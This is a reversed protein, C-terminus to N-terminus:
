LGYERIKRYLTRESIGMASSAKVRNGETLELTVRIHNKEVDQATKGALFGWNDESARSPAWIEPPLDQKTLINGQARVVMSEVANRLERVNGKWDYHVLSVLAERDIADVGKGHFNGYHHLFHDVLLKIDGRRERLPPLDLTVVKIRFYLDERFTQDAVKEALNANTAALLRVDVKRSRNDGLRTVMQDELVRLLKIQTATPMEGVEDLLLTGGDAYEFKGVRDSVAGTFAGKTHGFLESEITGESLGGCNLAVFPKERRSSYNHIARAIMEKGTGSEGLILVSANTSAIQRVIDLVRAMKQDQGIIGELGQTSDLQLRLDEYALDKRHEELCKAVKTRFEALDVPKEVYYTAGQEMADVAIERSGHGTLIIVRGYKYRDKAAKLVDFGDQGQMVLDTVIVAFRRDALLKVAEKGSAAQTIDVPLIELAEALTARLNDDDDVILIPDRNM